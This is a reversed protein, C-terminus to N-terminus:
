HMSQTIKNRLNEEWSWGLPGWALRYQLFPFLNISLVIEEEEGECFGAYIRQVATVRRSNALCM